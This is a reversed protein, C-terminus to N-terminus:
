SAALRRIDAAINEFAETIEAGEYRRQLTATKVALEALTKPRSELVREGLTFLQDGQADTLDVEPPLRALLDSYGLYARCSALTDTM